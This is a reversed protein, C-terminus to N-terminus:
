CVEDNSMKYIQKNVGRKKPCLYVGHPCLNQVNKETNRPDLVIAPM